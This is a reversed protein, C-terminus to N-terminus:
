PMAEASLNTSVVGRFTNTEDYALTTYKTDMAVFDFSGIGAANTWLERAITYDRERILLVRSPDPRNPTGKIETEVPVRGYGDYNQKIRIIPAVRKPSTLAAGAQLVAFPGRVFTASTHSGAM